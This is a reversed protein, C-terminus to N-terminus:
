NTEGAGAHALLLDIFFKVGWNPIALRMYRGLPGDSGPLGGYLTAPAGRLIQRSKLFDVAQRAAADYQPANLKKSLRFCAGGWQAVGTLCREGNAVTFDPNYQSRPVAGAAAELLRACFREAAQLYRAEGLEDYGDLLGEVVYVLTHLYAPEDAFSSHRFFGNPQQQAAAWDLNAIGADRLSPDGLHRGAVALAAGVRSYYSHPQGNYAYRLFSGDEEQGDRLWEAARAYAERELLPSQADALDNFGILVQGTDFVQPRGRLDPIAGDATQLQYLWAVARAISTEIRAALESGAFWRRSAARLSPLIYGTTEPYAPQWGEAFHYSHAYGMPATGSGQATLLWDIAAHAHQEDSGVLGRGGYVRALDPAAKALTALIRLPAAM